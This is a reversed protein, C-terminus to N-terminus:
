RKIGSRVPLELELYLNGPMEATKLPCYPDSVVCYWFFQIRNLYYESIKEM